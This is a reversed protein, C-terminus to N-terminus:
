GPFTGDAIVFHDNTTLYQLLDECYFLLIDNSEKEALSRDLKFFADTWEDDFHYNLKNRVNIEPDLSAFKNKIARSIKRPITSTPLNPRKRKLSEIDLEGFVKRVALAKVESRLPRRTSEAPIQSVIYEAEQGLRQLLQREEARSGCSHEIRSIKRLNEIKLEKDTKLINRNRTGIKVTEIYEAVDNLIQTKLSGKCAKQHCTWSILGKRSVGYGVLILNRFQGNEKVNLQIGKKQNKSIGLLEVEAVLTQSFISENVSQDGEPQLPVRVTKKSKRRQQPLESNRSDTDSDDSSSLLSDLVGKPADSQLNTENTVTNEFISDHKSYPKLELLDVSKNLDSIQDDSVQIPQIPTSEFIPDAFTSSNTAFSFAEGISGSYFKQRELM